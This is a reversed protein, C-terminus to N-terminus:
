GAIFWWLGAVLLAGCEPCRGRCLLTDEIAQLACGSVTVQVEAIGDPGERLESTVALPQDSGVEVAACMANKFLLRVIM